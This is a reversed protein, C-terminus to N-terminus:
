KKGRERMRYYKLLSLADKEHQTWSDTVEPDNNRVRCQPNPKWEGPSVEFLTYGYLVLAFKINTYQPLPARSPGRELVVLQVPYKTLGTLVDVTDDSSLRHVIRGAGDQIVLGTVEGPDIGAIYM